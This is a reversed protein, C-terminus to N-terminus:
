PPPPPSGPSAASPKTSTLLTMVVPSLYVSRKGIKALADRRSKDISDTKKEETKM